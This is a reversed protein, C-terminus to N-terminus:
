SDSRAHVFADILLYSLLLVRVLVACFVGVHDIRSYNGLVVMTDVLCIICVVWVVSLRDSTWFSKQQKM